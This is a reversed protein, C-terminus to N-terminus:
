LEFWYPKAQHCFNMASRLSIYRVSGFTVFSFSERCIKM